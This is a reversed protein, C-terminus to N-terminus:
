IERGSFLLQEALKAGKLSGGSRDTEDEESLVFMLAFMRIFYGM